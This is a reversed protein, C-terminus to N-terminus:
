KFITGALLNKINDQSEEVLQGFAYAAMQSGTEPTGTNSHSMFDQIEDNENEKLASDKAVILVDAINYKVRLALVERHFNNVAEEAEKRSPFPLSIKYNNEIKQLDTM